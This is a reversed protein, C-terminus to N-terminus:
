PRLWPAVQRAVFVPMSTGSHVGPNGELLMTPHWQVQIVREYMAKDAASLGPPTVFGKLGASPGRVRDVTGFLSTGWGLVVQDFPSYFSIIEKRTARLAPRLDYSPSVAASLLIIRELTQSPLKEVAALTLGTGGSKAVVYVPRDPNQAKVRLIAGALEDAKRLLHPTDQLDKLIKGTGHTWVFDRVEHRVGALPLAWRVAHNFLTFGGVGEVVFVVGPKAAQPTAHPGGFVFPTLFVATVVAPTFM